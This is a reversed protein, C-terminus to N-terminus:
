LLWENGRRNEGLVQAVRRVAARRQKGVGVRGQRPVLDSQQTICRGDGRPIGAGGGRLLRPAPTRDVLGARTLVCRAVRVDSPACASARRARVRGCESRWRRSRRGVGEEDCPVRRPLRQGDGRLLRRRCRARSPRGARRRRRAAANGRRQQRRQARAGDVLAHGVGRRRSPVPHDHQQRGHRARRACRSSRRRRPVHHERILRRHALLPARRSGRVLRCAGDRHLVHGSATARLRCPPGSPLAARAALVAAGM